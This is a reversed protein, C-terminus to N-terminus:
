GAEFLRAHRVTVQVRDGVAATATSPARLAVTAGSADRLDLLVEHVADRRGTVVLVPADLAEGHHVEVEHSRICAVAPGPLMGPSGIAGGIWRFHTASPATGECHEVLGQVEAFVGLLQAVQLTPPADLLAGPTAPASLAGFAGIAAIHTAVAMADDLDHTVLITAAGSETRAQLLAARVDRRVVPDLSSLPEDLLLVAPDACLARALAVRHRQGGSLATAANGAVEGVRLLALKELARRHAERRAVGRVTLPFAVNDLVTLHPFLVPEQHLYVVGRQEPPLASVDRGTVRISGRGQPQLGALTRLLSSKGSGSAGLVALCEGAHVTFTAAPLGIRHGPAQQVTAATAPDVILTRVSGDVPSSRRPGAFLVCLDRVDLTVTM